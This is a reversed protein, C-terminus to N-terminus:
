GGESAWCGGGRAALGALLHREGLVAIPRRHRLQASREAGQLLVHLAEVQLLLLEEPLRPGGRPPVGPNDGGRGFGM